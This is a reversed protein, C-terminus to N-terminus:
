YSGRVHPPGALRRVRAADERELEELTLELAALAQEHAPIWRREIAARRVATLRLESEVRGLAGAISAFEVAAALATRHAAAAGLLSASGALVSREPEPVAALRADAPCRVGLMTRWTLRVDAPPTAANRVAELQREGALVAARALWRDADRAAREWNERAAAVLPQLRHQERTLARYKQDLLEAGRRAVELRHV